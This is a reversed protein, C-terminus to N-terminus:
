WSDSNSNLNKCFHVPSSESASSILMQGRNQVFFLSTMETDFPDINIFFAITITIIIIVLIFCNINMLIIIIILFIVVIMDTSIARGTLALASHPWLHAHQRSIVLAGLDKLFLTVVAEDARAKYAHAIAQNDFRLQVKFVPNEKGPMRAVWLVRVAGTMRRRAFAPRRSNPVSSTRTLLLIHRHQQRM